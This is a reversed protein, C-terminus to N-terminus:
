RAGGSRGEDPVAFRTRYEAYREAIGENTLGFDEKGTGYMKLELDPNTVLAQSLPTMATTDKWGERFLLTSQQAAGRGRGGGGGPAAGGGLQQALAGMTLGAFAFVGLALTLSRKTMWGGNWTIGSFYLLRSNRALIVSGDPFKTLQQPHRGFWKICFV